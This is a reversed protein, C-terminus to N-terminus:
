QIPGVLVSPASRRAPGHFVAEMNNGDPDLAYASSNAPTTIASELRGTTAVVPRSLSIAFAFTFTTSWLGL